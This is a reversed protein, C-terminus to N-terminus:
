RSLMSLGNGLICANAAPRQAVQLIIETSAATSGVAANAAIMAIEEGSAADVICDTIPAANVGPFRQAVQGNIVMKAQDRMSVEIIEEAGVCASVALVAMIGLSKLM